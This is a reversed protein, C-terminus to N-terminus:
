EKKKKKLEVGGVNTAGGIAVWETVFLTCQMAGVGRFLGPPGAWSTSQPDTWRLFAAGKLCLYLLCSVLRGVAPVWLGTQPLM